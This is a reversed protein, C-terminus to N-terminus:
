SLLWCPFCCAERRITRGALRKEGRDFGHDELVYRLIGRLVEVDAEPFPRRELKGAMLLALTARAFDGAMRTEMDVLAEQLTDRLDMVVDIEPQIRPKSGGDARHSYGQATWSIKTSVRETFSCISEGKM